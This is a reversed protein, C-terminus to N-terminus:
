LGLREYEEDILKTVKHNINLCLREKIFKLTNRVKQKDLCSEQIDSYHYHNLSRILIVGKNPIEIKNVVRGKLSPFQEEFPIM